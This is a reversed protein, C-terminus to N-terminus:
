WSQFDDENAEEAQQTAWTACGLLFLIVSVCALGFFMVIAAIAYIM